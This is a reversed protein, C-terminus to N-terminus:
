GTATHDTLGLEEHWRLSEERLATLMGIESESFSHDCRRCAAGLEMGSLRLFQKASAPYKHSMAGHAVCLFRHLDKATGPEDEVHDCLWAFLAPHFNAGIGSYGHAGGQLAGLALVTNANYLRLPTGEVAEVKARILQLRGSTDKLFRFRGTNAVWHLTDPQLVRHYPVPCEYLSLPLDGTKALLKEVHAQWSEAPEDEGVLQNVICVVATVGTDFVRRILEAQGEVTPSFTAGAVVPVRDAASRVVRAALQVREDDSLEYMESSLCVTFLGASGSAIYWDVLRDVAEWDIQRDDTFPALM